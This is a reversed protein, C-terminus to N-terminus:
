TGGKKTILFFLGVFCAAINGALWAWGVAVIGMQPILWFTLGLIIAAYVVNMSVIGFLNKTIKFIAGLASYMAVPLAGLALLPLLQGAGSVYQSGFVSLLHNSAAAVILSAPLLVLAVVKVANAIHVRLTARNHSGEAFVSQMSAYAIAYLASAITFAMYYYAANSSGTLYIIVIPVITPPLLNLISSVYMSFSFKKVIHLIKTDFLVSFKYGFARKLWVVSVLLAMLQAVGALIFITMANGDPVLLPLGVKGVSSFICLIFIYRARKYALFIANTVLTLSGVVTFFIFVVFAWDDGLLALNPVISLLIWAVAAALSASTFAVITFASNIYDNRRRSGPLFRVLTTDFGALGFLALLGSVSLLTTSVGVVSTDYTRAVVVWFVFGAAATFATSLFLYFANTFFTNKAIAHLRFRFSM